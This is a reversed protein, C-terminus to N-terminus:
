TDRFMVCNDALDLTEDEFFAHAIELFKGPGGHALASRFQREGGVRAFVEAGAKAVSSLRKQSATYHRVSAAVVPAHSRPVLMRPLGNLPYPIHTVTAERRACLSAIEAGFNAEVSQM